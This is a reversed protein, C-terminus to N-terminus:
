EQLSPPESEYDALVHTTSFSQTLKTQPPERRSSEAVDNAISPRKLQQGFFHMLLFTIGVQFSAFSRMHSLM